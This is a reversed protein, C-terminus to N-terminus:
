RLLARNKKMESTIAMPKATAEPHKTFPINEPSEPPTSAEVFAQKATIRVFPKLGVMVPLSNDMVNAVDAFMSLRTYLDPTIM